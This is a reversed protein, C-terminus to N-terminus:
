LKLRKFIFEPIHGIILMIYRWFFPLYVENKRKEIATVIGAAVEEPQAWLFGKNPIDATMPTDVFGPKITLVHVGTPALRNRLGACFTSVMAKASGYVYNSQRGRNGAVSSIVAIVGRGRGELHNALLTLLSVMSLANTKIEELTTTVSQECARQDGLTGHAILVIDIGGLAKEAKSILEEHEGFENLDAACSAVATAGRVRLDEGLVALKDENRAVLFLQDGQAAYIRAVSTAIASSAGFILIKKM